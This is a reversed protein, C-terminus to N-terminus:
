IDVDGDIKEFVPPPDADANLIADCDMEVLAKGIVGAVVTTNVPMINQFRLGHCAAVATVLDESQVYVRTRVVDQLSGGLAALIGSMKDIIFDLQAQCQILRVELAEEEEEEEEEEDDDDDDDEDNVIDKSERYDEEGVGDDNEGDEAVGMGVEIDGHVATTGSIMIQNGVRMARVYGAKKEWPSGSSLSYSGNKKLMVKYQQMSKNTATDLHHSLDGSATLYPPQRYEDGCGTHSPTKAKKLVSHIIDLHEEDLEFSFISQNDLIHSNEGLRAGVIVASVHPQQEVWKMAINAINLKKVAGEGEYYRSNSVMEATINDAIQRLVILLDQFLNWGGWEDIFRKYKMEMWTNNSENLNEPEKKGLWKDTLYGGALSGYVILKCPENQLTKMTGCTTTMTKSSRTDLLSCHVQNWLVLLGSAVCIRVHAADFNTLAIHRIMGMEQCKALSSLADIYRTDTWNWWHFHLVDIIKGSDTMNKPFITDLSNQIAAHVIEFTMPGPKPCYKTCIEVINDAGHQKLFEQILAESNGYHDAADITSCGNQVHVLLADVQEQLSPQSHSKREQDACEWLGTFLASTDFYEPNTSETTQSEDSPVAFFRRPIPLDDDITESDHQPVATGSIWALM